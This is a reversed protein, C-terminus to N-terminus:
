LWRDGPDGMGCGNEAVVNGGDMWRAISLWRRVAQSVSTGPLRARSSLQHRRPRHCGGGQRARDGPQRTVRRWSDCRRGASRPLRERGRCRQIKTRDACRGVGYGRQRVFRQRDSEDYGREVLPPRSVSPWGDRTQGCGMDRLSSPSPFPYVDCGRGRARHAGEGCEEDANDDRTVGKVAEEVVKRDAVPAANPAASVRVVRTRDRVARGRTGGAM